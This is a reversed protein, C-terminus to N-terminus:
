IHILSLMFTFPSKVEDYPNKRMWNIKAIYVGGQIHGKSGFPRLDGGMAYKPNAMMQKIMDSLWDNSYIRTHIACVYVFYRGEAMSVAKNTAGALKGNNKNHFYKVGTMLKRLDDRANNDIVIIEYEGSTQKIQKFIELFRKNNRFPVICISAKM